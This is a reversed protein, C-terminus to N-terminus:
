YQPSHHISRLIQPTRHQPRETSSTNPQNKRETTHASQARTPLRHTTVYPSVRQHHQNNDPQHLHYQDQNTPTRPTAIRNAHCITTPTTTEYTIHQQTNIPQLKSSIYYTSTPHHSTTATHVYIRSIPIFASTEEAHLRHLATPSTTNTSGM